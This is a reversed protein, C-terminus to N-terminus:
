LQIRSGSLGQSEETRALMWAPVRYNPHPVMETGRARKASTYTIYAAAINSFAGFVTLSILIPYITPRVNDPCPEAYSRFAPGLSFLMFLITINFITGGKAVNYHAGANFRVDSAKKYHIYITSLSVILSAMSYIGSAVFMNGMYGNKTNYQNFEKRSAAYTFGLACLSTQFFNVIVSTWYYTSRRYLFDFTSSNSEDSSIVAPALGILSEDQILKEVDLEKDSLATAQPM